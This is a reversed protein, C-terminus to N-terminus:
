TWNLRLVSNFTLPPHTSDTLRSKKKKGKRSARKFSSPVDGELTWTNDSSMIIGSSPVKGLYNSAPEQGENQQVGRERGTRGQSKVKMGEEQQERAGEVRDESRLEV